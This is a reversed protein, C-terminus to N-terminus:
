HLITLEEDLQRRAEALEDLRAWRQTDTARRRPALELDSSSSASAVFVNCDRTPDLSRTTPTRRTMASDFDAVTARLNNVYATVPDDPLDRQESPYMATYREM